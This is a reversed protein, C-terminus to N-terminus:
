LYHLEVNKSCGGRVILKDFTCNATTGGKAYSHCPLYKRSNPSLTKDGSEDTTGHSQYPSSMTRNLVGRGESSLPTLELQSRQQRSLGPEVIKETQARNSNAEAHIPAVNIPTGLVVFTFIM